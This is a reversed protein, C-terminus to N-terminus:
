CLMFFIYCFNVTNSLYAAFDEINPQIDKFLNRQEPLYLSNSINGMRHSQLESQAWRIEGYLFSPINKNSPM